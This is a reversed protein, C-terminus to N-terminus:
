SLRAALYRLYSDTDLSPVEEKLKALYAQAAELRAATDDENGLISQLQQQHFDQNNLADQHFPQPVTTM